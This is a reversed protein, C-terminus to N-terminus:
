REPLRLVLTDGRQTFELHKLVSMGLLIDGDQMGPNLHASVARLRFPGLRLDDIVTSHVTVTGNATVVRARAGPALQLEGALRAPVSVQTAGTDLLFRVPQGNIQGPVLYHGARNRKLVMESAGHAVVLARNPDDRDAIMGDFSVWGLGIFALTALVGMRRGLKRTDDDADM